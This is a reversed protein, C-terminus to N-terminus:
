GKAAESKIILHSDYNGFLPVYFMLLVGHLHRACFAENVKINESTIIVLIIRRVVIM